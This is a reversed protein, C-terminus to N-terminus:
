DTDGDCVSDAYPLGYPTDVIGEVPTAEVGAKLKFPELIIGKLIAPSV